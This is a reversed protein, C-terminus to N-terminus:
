RCNIPVTLVGNRGVFVLHVTGSESQGVLEFASRQLRRVEGPELGVDLLVHDDLDAVAKTARRRLRARFVVDAVRQLVSFLSSGQPREAGWAATNTTM